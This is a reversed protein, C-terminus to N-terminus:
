ISATILVRFPASQLFQDIDDPAVKLVEVAQNFWKKRENVLNSDANLGLMDRTQKVSHCQGRSLNPLPAILGSDVVIAWQDNCGLGPEIPLLRDRKRQGCTKSNICSHAYNNYDFCLHPHANAGAKPKIHEVQGENAELLQECYVCLGGQDQHLDAKVLRKVPGFLKGDFDAVTVAPNDNLYQTLRPTPITRHELEVM